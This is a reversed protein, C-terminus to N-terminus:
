GKKFTLALVIIIVIIFKNKVRGKDLAYIINPIIIVAIMILVFVNLENM